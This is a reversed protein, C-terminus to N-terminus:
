VGYLKGGMCQRIVDERKYLGKYLILTKLLNSLPKDSIGLVEKIEERTLYSKDLCMELYNQFQLKYKKDLNKNSHVGRINDRHHYACLYTINRKCHELPKCQKRSVIHHGEINYSTGCESCYHTEASM